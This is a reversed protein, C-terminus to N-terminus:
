AVPPEATRNRLHENRATTCNRKSCSKPQLKRVTQWCDRAMVRRYLGNRRCATPLSPFPLPSSGTCATPFPLFRRPSKHRWVTPLPVVFPHARADATATPLPPFIHSCNCRRATPITPSFPSSFSETHKVAPGNQGAPPTLGPRAPFSSPEYHGCPPVNQGCRSQGCAMEPYSIIKTGLAPHVMGTKPWLPTRQM